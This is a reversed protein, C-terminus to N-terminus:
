GGTKKADAPLAAGVVPEEIAFLGVGVRVVPEDQSPRTEHLAMYADHSELFERGTRLLRRRLAPVSSIRVSANMATRYLLPAGPHSLNHIATRMFALLAMLTHMNAAAPDKGFLVQRELLVYLEGRREIGGVRTLADVVSDLSHTPFIPVILAELSREEGRLPIPVPSGQSDLFRRDFQWRTLVHPLDAVFQPDSVSLSETPEPLSDCIEGFTAKLRAPSLRCRVLLQAFVSLIAHVCAEVHSQGAGGAKYAGHAKM